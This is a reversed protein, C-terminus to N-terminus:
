KVRELRIDRKPQIKDTEEETEAEPVNEPKGSTVAATGSSKGTETLTEPKEAVVAATNDDSVLTDPVSEGSVVSTHTSISIVSGDSAKVKSVVKEVPETAKETQVTATTSGGKSGLYKDLDSPFYTSKAYTGRADSRTQVSDPSEFYMCFYYGAHYAGEANDPVGNLYSLVNNYGNELEYKLYNLQGDLSRYDMGHAKCWGMLSRCRGAHWQCLGLSTGGDGIAVTSFSSEFYMNALVGSAAAKHLGLDNRLYQYIRKENKSLDGVPYGHVAIYLEGLGGDSVTAASGSGAALTQTETQVIEHYVVSEQVVNESELTRESVTEEDGLMIEENLVDNIEDLEKIQEEAEREAAELEKALEEDEKKQQELAAASDGGGTGSQEQTYVVEESVSVDNVSAAGPDESVAGADLSVDMMSADIEEGSAQLGMGAALSLTMLWPVLKRHMDFKGGRESISGFTGIKGIGM